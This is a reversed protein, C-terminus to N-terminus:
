NAAQATMHKRGDGYLTITPFIRALPPYSKKVPYGARRLSAGCSIFWQQQEHIGDRDDFHWAVEPILMPTHGHGNLHFDANHVTRRMDLLSNAKAGPLRGGAVGHVVYGHFRVPRGNHAWAGVLIQLFAEGAPFYRDGIGLECMLADVSDEGSDRTLRDDHNGPVVALIRDAIPRLMKVLLHRADKQSMGCEALDLSVSNKIATNFVDGPVIIYRNDAGQTWEVAQRVMEVEFYLDGAHLDGMSLIEISDHKTLDFTRARAMLDKSQYAFPM